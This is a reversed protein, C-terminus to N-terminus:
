VLNIPCAVVFQTFNVLAQALGIHKMRDNLTFTEPYFYLLQEHELEDSVALAPSFVCFYFVSTSSHFESPMTERPSRSQPFRSHRSNTEARLKEMRRRENERGEGGHRQMLTSKNKNPFYNDITL